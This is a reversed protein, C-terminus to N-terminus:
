TLAPSLLPYPQWRVDDPSLSWRLGVKIASARLHLGPSDWRGVRPNGPQLGATSCRRGAGSSRKCHRATNLVSILHKINVIIIVRAKLRKKFRNKKLLFIHKLLMILLVPSYVSKEIRLVYDSSSVIKQLMFCTEVFKLHSFDYLGYEEAITSDLWFDALFLCSFCKWFTQFNSLECIIKSWFIFQM